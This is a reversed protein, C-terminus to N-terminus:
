NASVAAGTSMRLRQWAEVRAHHAQPVYGTAFPGWSPQRVRPGVTARFDELAPWITSWQEVSFRLRGVQISLLRAVCGNPGQDSFAGALYLAIWHRIRHLPLAAASFARTSEPLASRTFLLPRM